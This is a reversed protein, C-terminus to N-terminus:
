GLYEYNLLNSRTSYLEWGTKNIFASSLGAAKIVVDNGSIDAFPSGVILVNAFDNIALSSGFFGSNASGSFNAARTISGLDINFISCLGTGQNFGPAGVALINGTNM